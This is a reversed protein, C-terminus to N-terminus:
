KAVFNQWLREDFLRGVPDDYFECIPEFYGPARRYVQRLGEVTQEVAQEEMLGLPPRLFGTGMGLLGMATSLACPPPYVQASSNGQVTALRFFPELNGYILEGQEWDGAQFARIMNGIPQPFINAMASVIGNGRVEPDNMIWTAGKDQGCILSFEEPLQGRMVRMQELSATSVMASISPFEEAIKELDVCNLGNAGLNPLDFPVIAIAPDIARVATAIPEYFYRRLQSSAPRNVYGTPLGIGHVHGHLAVEKSHTLAERLSNSGACAMVYCQEAVVTAGAYIVGMQEDWSLASTQGSLGTLVIGDVRGKLLFQLHREMGPYDIDSDATMITVADVFVGEIKKFM